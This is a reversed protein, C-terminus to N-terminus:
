NVMVPICSSQTSEKPPPHYRLEEAGKLTM